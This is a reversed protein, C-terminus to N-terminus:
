RHSNGKRRSTKELITVIVTELTTDPKITTRHFLIYSSAVTVQKAYSRQVIPKFLSSGFVAFLLTNEASFRTKKDSKYPHQGEGCFYYQTKLNRRCLTPPSLLLGARAYYTRTCKKLRARQLFVLM